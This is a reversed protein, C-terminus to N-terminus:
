TNKWHSMNEAIYAEWKMGSRKVWFQCRLGTEDEIKDVERRVKFVDGDLGLRVGAVWCSAVALCTLERTSPFAFLRCALPPQAHHERTHNAGM